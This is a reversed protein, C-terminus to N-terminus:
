LPGARSDKLVWKEPVESIKNGQDDGGEWVSEDGLEPKNFVV